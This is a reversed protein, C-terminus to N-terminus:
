ASIVYNQLLATYSILFVTKITNDLLTFTGISVISRTIRWHPMIELHSSTMFFVYTKAKKNDYNQVIGTNHQM